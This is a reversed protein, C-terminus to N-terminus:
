ADNSMAELRVLDEPWVHFHVPEDAPADVVYEKQRALDRIVNTALIFHLTVKDHKGSDPNTVVPDEELGIFQAVTERQKGDSYNYTIRYTAGATPTPTSTLDTM